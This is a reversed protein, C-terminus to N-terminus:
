GADTGTGTLPASPVGEGIREGAPRLTNPRFSEIAQAEEQVLGMRTLITRSLVVYDDPDLETVHLMDAALLPQGQADRKDTMAPALVAGAIARDMYHQISLLTELSMVASSEGELVAPVPLEGLGLFIAVSPKRLLDVTLGSPLTLTTIRYQRFQDITSAM